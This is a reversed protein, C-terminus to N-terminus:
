TGFRRVGTLRVRSSAFSYDIKEARESPLVPAAVSFGPMKGAKLPTAFPFLLVNGSASANGSCRATKTGFLRVTTESILSPPMGSPLMAPHWLLKEPFRTPWGYAPIAVRLTQHPM